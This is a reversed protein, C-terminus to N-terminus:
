FLELSPADDPLDRGLAHAFAARQERMVFMRSVSEMASIPSRAGEPSQALDDLGIGCVAETLDNVGGLIQRVIDQSQAYAFIAILGAEIDAVAGDIQMHHAALRAQMRSVDSGPGCDTHTSLDRRVDALATRLRTVLRLLGEADGILSMASDETVREAASTQGRLVKAVSFMASRYAASIEASPFKTLDTM